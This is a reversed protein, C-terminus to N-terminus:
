SNENWFFCLIRIIIYLCVQCTISSNRDLRANGYPVFRLDVIPLLDGEFLEILNDVIFKVSDPCLSEYYVDLSVKECGYNPSSPSASVLSCLLLLLHFLCLFSPIIRPCCDMIFLTIQNAFCYHLHLSSFAVEKSNGDGFSQQSQDM